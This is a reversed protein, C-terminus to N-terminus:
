RSSEPMDNLVIVVFLSVKCTKMFLQVSVMSAQYINFKHVYLNNANSNRHFPTQMYKFNVLSLVAKHFVGKPRNKLSYM